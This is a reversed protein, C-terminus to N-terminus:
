RVGMEQKLNAVQRRLGEDGGGEALVREWEALARRRDGTAQYVTGLQRRTVTRKPDIKLSLRLAGAAPGFRGQVFHCLGLSHYYVADPSIRIARRYESEARRYEGLKYYCYGLNYHAGPSRPTLRIAEGFEPVAKAYQGVGTYCRALNEHAIACDPDAAIKQRLQAILEDHRERKQLLRAITGPNTLGCDYKEILRANKACDRVCVMCVDDWYVVRWVASKYFDRNEVNYPLLLANTEYKALKNEWGEKCTYISDWELYWEGGYVLCRGDMFVKRRPYTRWILYGGWAYENFVPGEVGEREMFDIGGTPLFRTRVGVGQQHRDDFVVALVSAVCAALLAAPRAIGPRYVFLGACAKMAIPMTLIVFMSIHRRGTVSLAAFGVATLMEWPRLKRRGAVLAACTVFLYTWYPAYSAKWEPRMWERINEMFVRSGMLRFPYLYVNLGFPNILAALAALVGIIILPHARKRGSRLWVGVVYAGILLLGGPFGAHVNAWLCMLAPLACAAWGGRRAHVDLVLAFLAALPWSAMLPRVIGVDQVIYAGALGGVLAWEHPVGLRRTRAAVLALAATALLAKLAVLGDVGFARHIEILGIDALWSPNVWRSGGATFSYPDVSPVRGTRLMEEGTKLHWWLDYNEITFVFFAFLCAVAIATTAIRRVSTPLPM